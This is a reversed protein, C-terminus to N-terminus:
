APPEGALEQAPPGQTLNSALATGGEAMRSIDMRLFRRDCKHFDVVRKRRVIGSM